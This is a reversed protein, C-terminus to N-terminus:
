ETMRVASSRPRRYMHTYDGRKSRFGFRNYYACLHWTREIREEEATFDWVHLRLTIEEIDCRRCLARLARGAVGSKRENPMVWLHSIWLENLDSVSVEIFAGGLFWTDDRDFHSDVYMNERLPHFGARRMFRYIQSNKDM